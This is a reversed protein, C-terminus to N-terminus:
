LIYGTVISNQLLAANTQDETLLTGNNKMVCCVAMVQDPFNKSIVIGGNDAWVQHQYQDVKPRTKEDTQIDHTIKLLLYIIHQM